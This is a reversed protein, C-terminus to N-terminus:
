NVDTLGVKEPYHKNAKKIFEAQNEMWDDRVGKSYNLYLKDDVISFAEEDIGVFRGASMAYACYGGYQPAYKEPEAVFLDKHAQSSFYWDAGRWSYTFEDTGKVAKNMTFYAVTDYGYIAKNNFTGTEIPDKAFASFTTLTLLTLLTALRKLM